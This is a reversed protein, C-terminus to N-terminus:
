TVWSWLFAQPQLYSLVMNCLEFHTTKCGEWTEECRFDWDTAAVVLEHVQRAQEEYREAEVFLCHWTNLTKSRQVRGFGTPLRFMKLKSMNSLKFFPNLFFVFDINFMQMWVKALGFSLWGHWCNRKWWKGDSFWGFLVDLMMWIHRQQKNFSMKEPDIAIPELLMSGLRKCVHTRSSWAQLRGFPPIRHDTTMIPGAVRSVAAAVVLVVRGFWPWSCFFM